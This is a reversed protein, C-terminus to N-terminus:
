KMGLVTDLRQFSKLGFSHRYEFSFSSCGELSVFCRTFIILLGDFVFLKCYSYLYLYIYVCMIRV